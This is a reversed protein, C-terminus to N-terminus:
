MEEDEDSGGEEGDLGEFEDIAEEEDSEFLRAKTAGFETGQDQYEVAPEEPISVSPKNKSLLKVKGAKTVDSKVLAGNKKPVVGKDSKFRKPFTEELTPVPAQKNKRQNVGM